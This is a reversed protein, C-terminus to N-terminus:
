EFASAGSLCRTNVSSSVEKGWVFACRSHTPDNSAGMLGNEMSKFLGGGGRGRDHCSEWFWSFTGSVIHVLTILRSERFCAVCVLCSHSWLFILWRVGLREGWRGFFPLVTDADSECRAPISTSVFVGMVEVEQEDGLLLVNEEDGLLSFSGCSMFVLLGGGVGDGEGVRRELM